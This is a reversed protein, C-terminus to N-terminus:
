LRAPWYMLKMNQHQDLYALAYKSFTKSTPFLKSLGVLKYLSTMPSPLSRKSEPLFNGSGDIMRVGLGGAQENAELYTLCKDLGDEPLITDPNLFLVYKGVCKKLAKNNAKAFGDNTTNAVFNVCPFRPSLYEISGDASANDVVWIEAPINKIANLLSFLCQELFYKVNYNVIIISLHL